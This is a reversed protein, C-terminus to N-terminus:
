SRREDTAKRFGESLSPKKARRKYLCRTLKMKDALHIDCVYICFMDYCAGPMDSRARKEKRHDKNLSATVYNTEGNTEM